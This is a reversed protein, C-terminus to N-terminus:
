GNQRLQTRRHWLGFFEEDSDSDDTEAELDDTNPPHEAVPYKIVLQTRQQLQEMGGTM